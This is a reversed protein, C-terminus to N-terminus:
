EIGYLVKTLYKPIKNLDLPKIEFLKNIDYLKQIRRYYDFHCQILVSTVPKKKQGNLTM